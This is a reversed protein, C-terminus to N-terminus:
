NEEREENLRRRRGQQTKKQEHSLTRKMRREVKKEM